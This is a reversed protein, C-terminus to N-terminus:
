SLIILELHEFKHAWRKLKNYSVKFTTESTTEKFNYVSSNNLRGYESMKVYKRIVTLYISSIQNDENNQLIYKYPKWNKFWQIQMIQKCVSM